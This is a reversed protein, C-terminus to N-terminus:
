SDEEPRALTEIFLPGHSDIVAITHKSRCMNPGAQLIEDAATLLTVIDERPMNCGLLMRGASRFTHVDEEPGLWAIADDLQVTEFDNAM